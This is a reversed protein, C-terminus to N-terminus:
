SKIGKEKSMWDRRKMNYYLLHVLRTYYYENLKLM